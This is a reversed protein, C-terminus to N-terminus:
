HCKKMWSAILEKNIGETPINDILFKHLKDLLEKIQDKPM